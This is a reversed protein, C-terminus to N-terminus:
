IITSSAHVPVTIVAIIGTVGNSNIDIYLFTCVDVLCKQDNEISSTIRLQLEIMDAAVEHNDQELLDMGWHQAPGGGDANVDVNKAQIERGSLSHGNGASFEGEMKSGSSPRSGGHRSGSYALSDAAGAPPMHKRKGALYDRSSSSM